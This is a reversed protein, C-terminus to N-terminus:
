QLLGQGRHKTFNDKSHNDNFLINADYMLSGQFGKYDPEQFRSVGHGGPSSNASDIVFTKKGTSPLAVWFGPSISTQWNSEKNKASQKYNDTYDAGLDLSPHLYGQTSGFLNDASEAAVCFTVAFFLVITALALTRLQAFM